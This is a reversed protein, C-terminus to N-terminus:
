AGILELYRRRRSPELELIARESWGYAGALRHVEHLLANAWADLESWLFSTIDFLAEWDHGCEPCHTALRIDAHPDADAMAACVATEVVEPWEAPVLQRCPDRVELLCRELLQRRFSAPEEGALEALDRGHPLRWRIHFDEVDLSHEEAAASGDVDLLADIGFAVEVWCQCDPCRTAAQVADGFLRRRLKLLCSDRQGVSRQAVEGAELGTAALLTLARLPLSQSCGQEWARLLTNNLARDIM